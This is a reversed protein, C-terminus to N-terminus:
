EELPFRDKIEGVVENVLMAELHGLSDYKHHRGGDELDFVYSHAEGDWFSLPDYVKRSSDIELAALEIEYLKEAFWALVMMKQEPTIPIDDITQYKNRIEIDKLQDSM